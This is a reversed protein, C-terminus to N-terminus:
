RHRHKGNRFRKQGHFTVSRAPREVVVFKVNIRGVGMSALKTFATPTLDLSARSGRPLHDTNRVKVHKGRYEVDILAGLPISYDRTACTMAAPDFHQGNAM